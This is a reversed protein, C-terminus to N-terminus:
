RYASRWEPLDADCGYPYVTRQCARDRCDTCGCSGAFIPHLCLEDDASLALKYPETYEFVGQIYRSTISVVRGIAGLEVLMRKFEDFDGGEFVKKGHRNFKEQLDGHSFRLPLERIVQECAIRSSPYRSAFGSCIEVMSETEIRAVGEVIAKPEYLQDPRVPYRQDCSAISNLIRIFQRPLLQTHRLLYALTNEEFNLGNTIKDPFLSHFIILADYPEDPDLGELETRRKPYYLGLFILIRKAAIHLLEKAHWHLLMSNDFDKHPNSSIDLFSHYLEAPLCFHLTFPLEHDNFEGVCKLLGRVAHTISPIDFPYAELSDLLVVAQRDRKELFSACESLADDFTITDLTKLAEAILGPPKGKSQEALKDAITWIVDEFYEYDRSGIKALYDRTKNLERHKAALKQQIATLIITRWIDAMTEALPCRKLIDEVTLFVKEFLKQQRLQLILDKSDDFYATGLFATKGSGRRGLIISPADEVAGYLKNQRDFILEEADRNRVKETRTPGFPQTPKFLRKLAAELKADM